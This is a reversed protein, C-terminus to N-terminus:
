YVIELGVNNSAPITCGNQTVQPWSMYLSKMYVRPSNWLSLNGSIGDETIFNGQLPTILTKDQTMTFAQNEDLTVLCQDSNNAFIVKALTLKTPLYPDSLDIQRSIEVHVAIADSVARNEFILQDEYNNTAAATVTTQVTAECNGNQQYSQSDCLYLNQIRGDESKQWSAALGAPPSVAFGDFVAKGNISSLALLWQGTTIVSQEFELFATYPKIGSKLTFTAAAGPSIFKDYAGDVFIDRDAGLPVVNVTTTFNNHVELQNDELAYAATIGGLLMASVVMAMKWKKM